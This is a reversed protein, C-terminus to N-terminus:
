YQIFYKDHKFLHKQNSQFTLLPYSSIDSYLTYGLMSVFMYINDRKGVTYRNVVEFDLQAATRVIGNNPDVTFQDLSGLVISYEIQANSFSDKDTANVDM